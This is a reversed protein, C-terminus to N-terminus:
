KAVGGGAKADVVGGAMSGVRALVVLKRPNKITINGMRQMQFSLFSPVYLPFDSMDLPIPSNGRVMGKRLGVSKIGALYTDTHVCRLRKILSKSPHKTRPM